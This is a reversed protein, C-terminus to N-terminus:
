GGTQVSRCYGVFGTPIRGLPLISSGRDPWAFRLRPAGRAIAGVLPHSLPVAIVSAGYFDLPDVISMGRFATRGARVTVPEPQPNELEEEVLGIFVIRLEGAGCEFAMAAETEPLSWLAVDRTASAGIEAAPKWSWRYGTACGALGLLLPLLLLFLRPV